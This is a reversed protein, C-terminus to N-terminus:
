HSKFEHARFCMQCALSVPKLGLETPNKERSSTSFFPTHCQVEPAEVSEYSVIRALM